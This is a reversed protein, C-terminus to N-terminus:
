GAPASAPSQRWLAEAEASKGQAQLALALHHRAKYDRLGADVAGVGEGGAPLALLERLRAEVGAPDGAGHWALAEQFLLEAEGPCRARGARCVEVAERPRGLHLYARALLVHLKPVISYGPRALELGRSLPPVSEAMWGLKQLTWGLNFLTVPDDPREANERELLRLYRENKGQRHEPDVYGTHRIVVDSRRLEGGRRQVAPVIQEHVRYQWRIEPHNRFLRAHDVVSGSGTALDAVCHCKMLYAANEDKLSDFLSRLKQRNDEDLRDDADLWFIWDGTAHRLSENRAASFDDCWPFDFVRAGFGSAIEKTRDASGTDVVIIEDCLGRASELCAPLNNEENKGILCLSVRAM